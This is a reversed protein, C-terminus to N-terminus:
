CKVNKDKFYWDELSEPGKLDLEFFFPKVNGSSTKDFNWPISLEL